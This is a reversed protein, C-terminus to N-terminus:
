EVAIPETTAPLEVASSTTAVPVAAAAVPTSSPAPASKPPSARSELRELLEKQETVYLQRLRLSFELRHTEVSVLTRLDHERARLASESAKEYEHFGTM